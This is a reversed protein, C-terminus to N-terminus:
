RTEGSSPQAPHPATFRSSDSHVPEGTEMVQKFRRLDEAVQQEPEEGFLKAAIMGAIGAPPQYELEVRVLTGMGGPGPSFQVSGSNEVDAKETSRWAIRREPQEDTIEAEWEVTRGAPAKAVWHSRRDDLVRVSELHDMFQPLNSFDRWFAYVEGQSRNVAITKVILVSGDHQMARSTLRPSGVLQQSCWMDLATVGAVAATAGALRGRDNRDSTMAAALLALDMMDGGVRSMVWSTPRRETLIGVGSAIERAGLARLLTTHDEGVGILRAVSRPALAEALGLGISFWGLGVALREAETKPRTADPEVATWHSVNNNDM